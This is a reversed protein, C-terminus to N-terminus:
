MLPKQEAATVPGSSAREAAWETAVQQPTVASASDGRSRRVDTLVAAVEDDTMEVGTGYASMVSNFPAGNVTVPGRMGHRVIRIPVATDSANVYESGALAPLAGALGAGNAQHCTVCRRRRARDWSSEGASGPGAAGM